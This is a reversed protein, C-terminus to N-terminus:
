RRSPKVLIYRPVSTTVPGGATVITLTVRYSGARSFVHVPNQENSTKGDGFSWSWSRADIGSTTDRFQVALPAPGATVNSTFQPRPLPLVTILKKKEVFASSTASWTTLRVTYTGARTYVHVPNRDTSTAGDGFRWQYRVIPGTSTDTFQVALPLTDRTQNVTFSPVPRNPDTVKILQVAVKVDTRKANQPLDREVKLVVTYRGARAYTHVPNQESSSTGDGFQWSWRLPSGTSTDTFRVTLPAPGGTVNSTFNARLANPDFARIYHSKVVQGTRRGETVVLRVTYAGARRYVHVPNQERSFTGDGFSWSWGSVSQSSIGTFQVALPIPGVTVNAVFDAPLRNDNVPVAGVPVAVLALLALLLATVLGNKWIMTIGEMATM